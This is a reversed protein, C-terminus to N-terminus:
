TLVSLGFGFLFYGLWFARVETQVVAMVLANRM